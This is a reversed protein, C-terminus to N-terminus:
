YVWYESPQKEMGINPVRRKKPGKNEFEEYASLIDAGSTGLLTNTGEEITVPRETNERITFCPIGLATTEEQLGGSDTLVLSADKWLKLFDVYLMPPLLEINSDNILKLQGFEEINKRTRPHVPFIVTMDESIRVLADLIGGLTNRDDVNSARGLSCFQIKVFGVFTISIHECM